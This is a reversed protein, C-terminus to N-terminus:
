EEASDPPMEFSTLTKVMTEFQDKLQSNSSKPSDLNTILIPRMTEEDSFCDEDSDAGKCSPRSVISIHGIPPLSQRSTATSMKSSHTSYVTMRSGSRCARVKLHDVKLLDAESAELSMQTRPQQSGHRQGFRTRQSRSSHPINLAKAPKKQPTNLNCSHAIMPLELDSTVQQRIFNTLSPSPSIRQRRRQSSAKKESFAHKSRHYDKDDDLARLPM